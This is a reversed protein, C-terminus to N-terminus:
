KYKNVNKNKAPQRNAQLRKGKRDLPQPTRQPEPMRARSATM